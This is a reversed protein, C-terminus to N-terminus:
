PLKLREVLAQFRPEEHLVEFDPETKVTAM